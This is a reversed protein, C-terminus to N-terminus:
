SEEPAKNSREVRDELAQLARQSDIFIGRDVVSSPDQALFSERRLAEEEPTGEFANNEHVVKSWLAHDTPYVPWTNKKSSNILVGGVCRQGEENILHGTILAGEARVMEAAERFTITTGDTFEIM